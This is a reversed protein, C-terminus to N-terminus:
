LFGPFGGWAREDRTQWILRIRPQTPSCPSGAGNFDVPEPIPYGDLDKTVEKFAFRPPIDGNSITSVGDSATDGPGVVTCLGRDAIHRRWTNFNVWIEINLRYYKIGNNIGFEASINAMRGQFPEITEQFKYAPKNIIVRDSNVTGMWPRWTASNYEGLFKTLRLVYIDEDEELGPDFPTLASNCPIRVMGPTLKDPIVTNPDFGIFRAREVIKSRQTYGGEINDHWDLPNASPEGGITQPDESGPGTMPEFTCEVMWWGGSKEIQTPRLRRCVSSNDVGNGLKFKRGPFPLSTTLRFHDYIQPPMDLQSDCKVRYMTRYSVSIAGTDTGSLESQVDGVPTASIVAM